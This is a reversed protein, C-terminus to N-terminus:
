IQLTDSGLRPTPKAGYHEVKAEFRNGLRYIRLSDLAPEIVELLSARFFLFQAHDIECEFVSYQVRQGHNLCLKAVKRLRRPGDESDTSIDYSVIILM